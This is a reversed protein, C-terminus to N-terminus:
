VFSQLSLAFWVLIAQTLSMGELYVTYQNANSDPELRNIILYTLVSSIMLATTIWINHYGNLFSIFISLLFLILFLKSANRSMKWGLKLPLTKINSDIDKLMDRMDFPITIAMLFLLRESLHWLFDDKLIDRERVVFVSTMLTWVLVVVFLKAFPVTRLNYREGKFRLFPISYMLALVGGLLFINWHWGSFNYIFPILLVVSVVSMGLHINRYQLEGTYDLRKKLYRHFNYVFLTSLFVVSCDFVVDTEINLLLKTQWALATACLAVFINSYIIFDLAKKM